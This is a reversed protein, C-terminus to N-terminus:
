VTDAQSQPEEFLVPPFNEIDSNEDSDSSIVVM